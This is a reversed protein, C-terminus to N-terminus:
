EHGRFDTKMTSEYDKASLCPAAFLKHQEHPRCSSPRAEKMRLDYGPAREVTQGPGRNERETRRPPLKATDFPGRAYRPPRRTNTLAEPQSTGQPLFTRTLRAEDLCSDYHWQRSTSTLSGVTHILYLRNFLFM